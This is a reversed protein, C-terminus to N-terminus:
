AYGADDSASRGDVTAAVALTRLIEAMEEAAQVFGGAAHRDGELITGDPFTVQVPARSPVNFSHANHKWAFKVKGM